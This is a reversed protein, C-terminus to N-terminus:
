AFGALQAGTQQNLYRLIGYGLGHDPLARLQEKISKLAGGLGAGGALADAPDLVGADLRVPFQSTFWGVTRSLDVDAVMEERGPGEVDVLVAAPSAGGGRRRCWGALAVALGTLLVENVGCHFAAPVRTLLATTLAAPLTLTVHGATGGVDRGPDLAADMLSLSPRSLMGMWLPLEALRRTEQGELGLR